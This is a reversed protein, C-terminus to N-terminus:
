NANSYSYEDLTTGTIMCTCKGYYGGIQATTYVDSFRVLREFHCNDICYCPHSKALARWFSIQASAFYLLVRTCPEEKKM